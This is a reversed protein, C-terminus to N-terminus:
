AGAEVLKNQAAAAGRLIRHELRHLEALVSSASARDGTKAAVEIATAPESLVDFGMSGGAGKLWHALAALEQMEVRALAADMQSLKSPLQDVFRAAIPGLKAHGALRSVIAPADAAAAQVAEALRAEDAVAAPEVKAAQGGLRAALDRLLADVDIPKTLFGSFGADVIESEFGKMANATLAVIPLTCGGARLRRTATQGDMVPMQMDMLVLDIHEAAV